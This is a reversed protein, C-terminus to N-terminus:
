PLEYGELLATGTGGDAGSVQASYNGPPLVVLLCSDASNRPLAFAGVSNAAAIIQDSVGASEWGANTAVLRNQSDFIRLEPRVLAGNLGFAKLTPGIARILVTKAIEGDVVFGSILVSSGTGVFDRTSLNVLHSGEPDADSLDRVDPRLCHVEPHLIVVVQIM